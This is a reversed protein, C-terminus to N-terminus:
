LRRAAQARHKARRAGTDPDAGRAHQARARLDARGHVGGAAHAGQGAGAFVGTM